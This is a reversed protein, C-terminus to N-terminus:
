EIRKRNEPVDPCLKLSTEILLDIRCPKSLFVSDPVQRDPDCPNGSCYIIAAKVNTVRFADAVDWGSVAGPLRIDTVLLAIDPNDRLLQLATDGANAELVTWGQTELAEALELRVLWEDEVVLAISLEARGEGDEARLADLRRFAWVFNAVM